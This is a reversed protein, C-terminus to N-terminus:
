SLNALHVSWGILGGPPYIDVGMGAGCLNVFVWRSSSKIERDLIM